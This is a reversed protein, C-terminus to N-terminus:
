LSSLSTLTSPSSLSSSDTSIKMRKASPQLEPGNPDGKEGDDSERKDGDMDGDREEERDRGHDRNYERGYDRSYDRGYDRGYDRDYDRGYDRRYDRGYDRGYDRDRGRDRDHDRNRESRSDMARDDYYARGYDQSRGRVRENERDLDREFDRDHDLDRYAGVDRGGRGIQEQGQSQSQSQGQGQGQDQDQDQNAMAPTPTINSSAMSSTNESEMGHIQAGDKDSASSASISGSGSRSDECAKEAGDGFIVEIERRSVLQPIRHHLVLAYVQGASNELTEHGLLGGIGGFNGSPAGTASATGAAVTTATSATGGSGGTMGIGLGTTGSTIGANGLNNGYGGGLPTSPTTSTNPTMTNTMSSGVGGGGGGSGVGIGLPTSVVNSSGNGGAAGTAIPTNVESANPTMGAAALCDVGQGHPYLRLTSDVNVAVISTHTTGETIRAWVSLEMRTMLGLKCIVTKWTFSGRKQYICTRTWLEQLSEMLTPVAKTIGSAEDGRMDLALHELMEGRHDTWVCILWRGDLSFGYGVHMTASHKPVSNPKQHVDFHITTPVPKALAFSPAYTNIQSMVNQSYVPRELFLKCKSYVTFAMDRLGFRLYGGFTSPYIVHQIPVVQMVLRERQQELPTLLLNTAATRYQTKMISFARCLDFYGAGHSFPNIMYIVTHIDVQQSMGGLISGLRQCGDIYSRVQQAEMSEGVLGPLLPIPVLGPKADSIVGPQHQGLLSTEFVVSLERWFKVVSSEIDAGDPYVVFYRINKKCSYPELSLKEWFRLITPSAELWEENHGVVIDPAQMQILSPEATKRKKVQYKGYKSPMPQPETLSFFQLLTLPGKMAMMPPHNNPSQTHMSALSMDQSADSPIPLIDSSSSQKDRFHDFIEFIVAKIEMTNKFSEDGLSPVTAVGGHLQSLMTKRRSVMVHLSEGESIEGSTGTVENSGGFPYDGLIAQECLTKVAELFFERALSEPITMPEKVLAPPAASLIAPTFPTDFEMQAHYAESTPWLHCPREKCASNTIGFRYLGFLRGGLSCEMPYAMVSSVFRASNIGRVSWIPGQHKDDTMTVVTGFLPHLNSRDDDSDSSYSSSSSSSDSDSSSSEDVNTRKQAPQSVAGRFSVQRHIPPRTLSHSPTSKNFSNTEQKPVYNSNDNSRFPYAALSLAREKKVTVMGLGPLSPRSKSRQKTKPRPTIWELDKGPQYLPLMKLEHRHRSDPIMSRRRKYLRRYVFRGGEQYKTEDVFYGGVIKLPSFISPIFSQMPSPMNEVFLSPTKKVLAQETTAVPSSHITGTLGKLDQESGNNPTPTLMSINHLPQNATTQDGAPSLMPKSEFIGAQSGLTGAPTLASSPPTPQAFSSLDLDMNMFLGDDSLLSDNTMAKLMQDDASADSYTNLLADTSSIASNSPPVIPLSSTTVPISSQVAPTEFATSLAIPLSRSPASRPQEDFFSFDDKTVEGWDDGLDDNNGGSYLGMLSDMDLMDPMDSLNESQMDIPLQYTTASPQADVQASDIKVSSSADAAAENLPKETALPDHGTTNMSSTEMMSAMHLKPSLANSKKPKRRIWGDSDTTSTKKSTLTTKKAKTLKDSSIEGPPVTLTSHEASPSDATKPEINACSNLVLSTLYGNPDTYSWYDIRNADYESLNAERKALADQQQQLFLSQQQQQLQYQQQHQQQQQQLQHQQQQWASSGAKLRNRPEALVPTHDSVPQVLKPVPPAAIANRTKEQWSWMAFKAGLDESFGQNRSGMGDLQGVDGPSEKLSLPVFVREVPYQLLVENGGSKIVVPVLRPLLTNSHLPENPGFLHTWEELCFAMQEETFEISDKPRLIAPTGHPSLVVQIEKTLFPRPLLDNADLTRLRHHQFTPQFILNTSSLYIVVTCSLMTMSPMKPFTPLISGDLRPQLSSPFVYANDLRYGGRRLMGRDLVNRLGSIFIEYEQEMGTPSSTSLNARHGPQLNVNKGLHSAGGQQLISNWELIGSQRETLRDLGHDQLQAPDNMWFVWLDREVTTSKKLQQHHHQQQHHPNFHPQQDSEQAYRWECPIRASLLSAYATLLPDTDPVRYTGSEHSSRTRSRHSSASKSQTGLQRALQRAPCSYSYRTFRFTSLDTIAFINTPYNDNLM